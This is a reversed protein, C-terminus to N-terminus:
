HHDVTVSLTDEYKVNRSIEDCRLWSKVGMPYSFQFEMSLKLDLFRYQM